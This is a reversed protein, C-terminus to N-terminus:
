TIPIVQTVHLRRNVDRRCWQQYRWPYPTTEKLSKDHNKSKQIKNWKNSIVNLSFLYIFEAQSGVCLDIISKQVEFHLAVGRSDRPKLVM